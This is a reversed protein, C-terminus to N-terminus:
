YVGSVNDEEKGLMHQFGPSVNELQSEAVVGSESKLKKICMSLM